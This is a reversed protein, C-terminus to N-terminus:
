VTQTQEGNRGAALRWQTVWMGHVSKSKARTVGVREVIGARAARLAIQGWARKDPPDSLTANTRVEETTFPVGRAAYRAFADFAEDRWAEGAHAAAIKAGEYGLLLGPSSRDFVKM